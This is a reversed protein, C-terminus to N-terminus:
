HVATLPIHINGSHRLPDISSPQKILTGLFYTDICHNVKSYVKKHFDVLFRSGDEGDDEDVSLSLIGGIM